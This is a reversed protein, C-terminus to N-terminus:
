ISWAVHNHVSIKKTNVSAVHVSSKNVLNDMITAYNANDIVDAADFDYPTNSNIFLQGRAPAYPSVSCRRLAQHTEHHLKWQSNQEQCSYASSFLDWPPVEAMLEITLISQEECEEQTPERVTFNCIVKIQNLSIIIPNTADFHITEKEYPM